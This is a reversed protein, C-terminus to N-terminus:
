EGDDGSYEAIEGLVEHLEEDDDDDEEQELSSMKVSLDRGLFNRSVM